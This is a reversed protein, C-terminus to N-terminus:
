FEPKASFTKDLEHRHNRLKADIKDISERIDPHAEALTETNHFEFAKIVNKVLIKIFRLQEETFLTKLLAQDKAADKSETDNLVEDMGWISAVDGHKDELWDLIDKINESM